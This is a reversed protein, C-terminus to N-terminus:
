PIIAVATMDDGFETSIAREFLMEVLVKPDNTTSCFTNLMGLELTDTIGDSTLLYVDGDKHDIEIIDGEYGMGLYKKEMNGFSTTISIDRTGGIGLYGAKSGDHASPTEKEENKADMVVTGDSNVNYIHGKQHSWTFSVDKAVGSGPTKSAKIIREAEDKNTVEHTPLIQTVTVDKTGFGRICFGQTDGLQALFFKKVGKENQLIFLITGCAGGSSYYIGENRLEKPIIDQIHAIFERIDQKPSNFSISNPAFDMYDRVIKAVHHGDTGHGDFVAVITTTPVFQQDESIQGYEDQKFQAPPIVVDADNDCTLNTVMKGDDGEQSHRFAGTDQNPKRDTGKVCKMFARSSM